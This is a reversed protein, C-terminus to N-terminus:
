RPAPHHVRYYGFREGHTDPCALWDSQGMTGEVSMWDVLNTSHQLQRTEDSAWYLLLGDSQPRWGLRSILAETTPGYPAQVVLTLEQNENTSIAAMVNQGANSWFEQTFPKGESPTGTVTVQGSTGLTAQGVMPEMWGLFGGTHGVSILDSMEEFDQAGEIDIAQGQENLTMTLANPVAVSSSRWLGKIDALSLVPPVRLFLVLEQEGNEERTQTALVDKSANVAVVLDFGPDPPPEDIHLTIRGTTGATLHGSFADGMTGSVTGNTAISLSGLRAALRGKIGLGVVFGQDLTPVIVSPTVLRLGKWTGALDSVALLGPAKLVVELDHQRGDSSLTAGVMVDSQKNVTLLLDPQTPIHVQILGPGTVVLNGSYPGTFNGEADVNLTMQDTEFRDGGEVSLLRGQPDRRLVLSSPTSLSVHNWHGALDALDQARLDSVVPDGLLFCGCGGGLLAWRWPHTKLGVPASAATIM